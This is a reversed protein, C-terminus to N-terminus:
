FSSEWVGDKDGGRLFILDKLVLGDQVETSDEQLFRGVVPNYYRARLYYQDSIEDYQQGTYRIRGDERNVKSRQNKSNYTFRQSGETGAIGLISGKHDYTFINKGTDGAKKWGVQFAGMSNLGM